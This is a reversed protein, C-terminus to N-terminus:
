VRARQETKCACVFFHSHGIQARHMTITLPIDTGNFRRARVEILDCSSFKEGEEANLKENLLRQEERSPIFEAFASGRAEWEAIQFLEQAARNFELVKGHADLLIIPDPVAALVAMKVSDSERLANQTFRFGRRDAADNLEREIAPILRALNDKMVYDDAGQEMMEAGVEEPVSGSLVIFPIDLRRQRLLELAAPASFQPLRYDAIVVDWPQQRLASSMGDHTEVRELRPDYGNRRLEHLVLAADGESDEVMLVRILKGM